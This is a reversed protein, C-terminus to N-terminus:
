CLVFLSKLSWGICILKFSKTTSAEAANFGVSLIEETIMTNCLSVMYSPFNSILNRQIGRSFKNFDKLLNERAIQPFKIV